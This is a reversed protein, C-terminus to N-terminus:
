DVVLKLIPFNARSYRDSPFNENQLLFTEARGRSVSPPTSLAITGDRRVRLNFNKVQKKTWCYAYREGGLEIWGRHEGKM